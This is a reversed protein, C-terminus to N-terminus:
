LTHSAREGVATTATAAAEKGKFVVEFGSNVIANFKDTKSAASTTPAATTSATPAATASATPAATASATPTATTATKAPAAAPLLGEGKYDNHQPAIALTFISVETQNL